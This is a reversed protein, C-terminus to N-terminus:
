DSDRINVGELGERTVNELFIPQKWTGAARRLDIQLGRVTLGDVHSAYLVYPNVGGWVGIGSEAADAPMTGTPILTVDTLMINEAAREAYGGIYSGFTSEAIVNSVRINRMMVQAPQDPLENGMWFHIAQRVGRMTINSFAINEIRSGKVVSFDTRGPLIAIADLGIDTDRITLNSFVCNRIWGDGEYGLRVGCAPKSVLTCNTVAIDECNMTAYKEPDDFIGADSKLAIADDGGEIDCNSIRFRQCCDLDIGDTNPGDAPNRITVHDIVGDRCGICWLTYCPSDVLRVDRVLVSECEIWGVLARPRFAKPRRVYVNILEDEWFAPGNGNIEGAGEISVHKAGDAYILFGASFVPNGRINTRPIEPYDAPDTSGLLVATADLLLCVHDKLRITGSRYVGPTLRVTGGGTESCMDVARQIAETCLTTGDGVAGFDTVYFVRDKPLSVEMASTKDMWM